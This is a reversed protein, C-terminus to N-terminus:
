FAIEEEEDHYFDYDPYEFIQNYEPSNELWANYQAEIMVQEGTKLTYNKEITKQIMELDWKWLKLM